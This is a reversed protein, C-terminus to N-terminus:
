PKIIFKQFMFQDFKGCGVDRFGLGMVDRGM